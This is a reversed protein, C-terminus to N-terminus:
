CCFSIFCMETVRRKLASVSNWIKHIELISFKAQLSPLVWSHSNSWLRSSDFLPHILSWGFLHNWWPLLRHHKKLLLFGGDKILLKVNGASVWVHWIDSVNGKWAFLFPFLSILWPIVFTNQRIKCLAKLILLTLRWMSFTHLLLQRIVAVDVTTIREVSVHRRDACFVPTQQLIDDPVSLFILM